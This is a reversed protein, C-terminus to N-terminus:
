SKQRKEVAEWFKKEDILVRRGVTVFAEGFGNKPTGARIAWIAADSGPWTGQERHKKAFEKVTFLKYDKVITCKNESNISEVM